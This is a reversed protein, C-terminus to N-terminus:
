VFLSLILLPNETSLQRVLRKCDEHHIYGSKIKELFSPDIFIHSMSNVVPLPARSLADANRHVGGPRYKITVLERYPQLDM